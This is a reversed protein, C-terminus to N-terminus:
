LLSTGSYVSSAFPPTLRATDVRSASPRRRMLGSPWDSNQTDSSLVLPCPNARTSGSVPVRTLRVSM